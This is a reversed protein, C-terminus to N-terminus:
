ECHAKLDQLASTFLSPSTKTVRLSSRSIIIYFAVQLSSPAEPYQSGERHCRRTVDFFEITQEPLGGGKLVLCRNEKGLQVRGDVSRRTALESAAGISKLVLGHHATNSHKNRRGEELLYRLRAATKPSKAAPLGLMM